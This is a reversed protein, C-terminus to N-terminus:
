VYSYSLSSLSLESLFTVLDKRTYTGVNVKFRLNSRQYTPTISMKSEPNARYSAHIVPNKGANIDDVMKKVTAKAISEGIEPDAERKENRIRTEEEIASMRVSMNQVYAAEIEHVRKQLERCYEVAAINALGFNMSAQLQDFDTIFGGSSHTVAFTWKGPRMYDYGIRHIDIGVVDSWFGEVNVRLNVYPNTIESLNLEPITYPLNSTTQTM